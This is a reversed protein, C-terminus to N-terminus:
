DRNALFIMVYHLLTALSALAAMVYTMAAGKLADQAMTHESGHTIGTKNLWNLARRSADFEVPLAIRGVAGVSSGVLLGSPAL